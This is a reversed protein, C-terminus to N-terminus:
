CHYAQSSPYHNGVHAQVKIEAKSLCQGNYHRKRQEVAQSPIQKKQEELTRPYFKALLSLLREKLTNGSKEKSKEMM